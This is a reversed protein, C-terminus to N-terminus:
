NLHAPAATITHAFESRIWGIQQICIRIWAPHKSISPSVARWFFGWLEKYLDELVEVSAILFCFNDRGMIFLFLYFYIFIFLYFNVILTGSNLFSRSM